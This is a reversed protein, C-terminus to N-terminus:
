GARRWLRFPGEMLSATYSRAWLFAVAAGISNGAALGWWIGDLSLGLLIAFIGAFATTLIITRLITVILANMGKGTGQFLASSFMGFSVTPYFLCMIRLFKTLDPAIHAAEASMTFVAAIQPAFLFTLISIGTGIYFGVKIAYLHATEAKEYLRAGYAAGTVSVVATSIALLPTIAISVVRWGVSYVAVGDTTAVVIILANLILITIAMSLQQVTAPLGVSFIDRIHEHNLRFGGIHFSIYTDKKVWLWYVMIGSSVALSLITAYAAGAVGLGLTYIFIPDLIINLVSSVAMAYMARNADGEARLIAYAVYSFFIFISGLFIIKGYDAAMGAANGAGLALFLDDALIFLPVTYVISAAAMLLLTHMAVSDAGSKDKAGIRRSIASGGGVGLGNAFGMAMFFFPFVFGIAALADAGLGSVWFADVINYLSLLVMAVIIPGSLKIIAATPDGLLTQVGKTEKQPPAERRM